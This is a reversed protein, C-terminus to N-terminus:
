QHTRKCVRLGTTADCAYSSRILDEVNGVFHNWIPEGKMPSLSEAVILMPVSSACALVEALDRESDSLYQHFRPCVLNWRRLGFAHGQDDFGRGLRAYSGSSGTALLRQAEPSLSGLLSIREKLNFANNM